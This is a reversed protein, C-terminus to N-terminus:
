ADDDPGLENAVGDADKGDSRGVALWDEHDFDLLRTRLRRLREGTFRQGVRKLLPTPSRMLRHLRGADFGRPADGSQAYRFLAVSLMSRASVFVFYAIALTAVGAAGMTWGLLDRGTGDLLVGAVLLLAGPLAIFLVPRLWVYVMGAAEGAWFERVLRLSRRAADVPGDGMLAIAPIAFFAVVGLSFGILVTALQDIGWSTVLRAPIAIALVFLSWMAVQPVRRMALRAADMASAPEEHLIRDSLAALGVAALNSAFAILYLEVIVAVTRQPISGDHRVNLILYAMLGHFALLVVAASGVYRRLAPEGRVLDIASGGLSWGDALYERTRGRAKEAKPQETVAWM